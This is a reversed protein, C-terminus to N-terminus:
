VLLRKELRPSRPTAIAHRLEVKWAPDVRAVADRIPRVSLDVLAEGGGCTMRRSLSQQAHEARSQQKRDTSYFPRTWDM